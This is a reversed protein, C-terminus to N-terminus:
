WLRRLTWCGRRFLSRASYKLHSLYYSLSCKVDMSTLYVYMYVYMCVYM